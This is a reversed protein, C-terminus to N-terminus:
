QQKNKGSSRRSIVIIIMVTVLIIGALCLLYVAMNNRNSGTITVTGNGDAAPQADEGPETYPSAILEEIAKVAKYSQVGEATYITPLTTIRGESLNVHVDYQGVEEFGPQLNFAIVNTQGVVEGMDLVTGTSSDLILNIWPSEQGLDRPTYDGDYGLSTLAIYYACGQEAMEDYYINAIGSPKYVNCGATIEPYEEAIAPSVLGIIGVRIGAIEVIAYPDFLLEGDARLWNACLLPFNARGALEQLREIGLGADRTGIAAATYQAADMLEITRGGDGSLANGCDVLLLPTNERLEEALAALKGYGIATDSGQEQGNVDGTHLVSFGVASAQKLIDEAAALSDGAALCTAPLLLTVCLLICLIAKKM